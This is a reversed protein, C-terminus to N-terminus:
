GFVDEVAAGVWPGAAFKVSGMAGGAAAVEVTGDSGTCDDAV